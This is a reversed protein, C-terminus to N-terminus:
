KVLVMKKMETYVPINGSGIVEIRYLYIGSAIGPLTTTPFSNGIDFEVEYYGADKEENVLVALKEGKIDYVMLKVYGREKLKYGITTRPNFPNPYNQYLYYDSVVQPYEDITTPYVTLEESPRSQNGQKDVCTIKYYLRQYSQTLIDVFNTDSTTGILKTSDIIFNPTISRYIKYHSTDAETNKNWKLRVRSSDVVATLNRPPRPALDQYTYIEGFPGGYMGIDSRSGDPDLITPAGKDIAPSHAQLHYDWTGNYRVITDNVLMPDINILNNHGYQPAYRFNNKNQWFLNYDFKLSSSGWVGYDGSNKIISNYIEAVYPQILANYYQSHTLVNNLIYSTNYAIDVYINDGFKSILNNQIIFSKTLAVRIGPFAYDNPM